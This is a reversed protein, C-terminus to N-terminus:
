VVGTNHALSSICDEKTALTVAFVIRATNVMDTKHHVAAVVHEISQLGSRIDPLVVELVPAFLSARIDDAELSCANM